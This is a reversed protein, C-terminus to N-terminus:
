IYIRQSIEALSSSSALNQQIIIRPLLPLNYAGMTPRYPGRWRHEFYSYAQLFSADQADYKNKDWIERQIVGWKLSYTQLFFFIIIIPEDFAKPNKDGRLQYSGYFGLDPNFSIQLDHFQFKQM